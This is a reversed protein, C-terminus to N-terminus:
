KKTSGASSILAELEKALKPDEASAQGWDKVITGNPDIAFLHPTDFSPKQPTAKFYAIATQSYDFLVPYNIRTEAVFVAVTNQNAPPSLTVAFVDVKGAFRVRLTELTKSLAKCHVCSTDMYELLLWKGRSDLIDHQVGRSDPLSFSPARRGSLDQAPVLPALGACILLAMPLSLFIRM